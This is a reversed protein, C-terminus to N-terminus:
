ECDYFSLSILERSPTERKKVKEETKMGDQLGRPDEKM